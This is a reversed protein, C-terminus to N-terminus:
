YFFLADGEEMAPLCVEVECAGVFEDVQDCLSFQLFDVLVKFVFFPPEDCVWVSSADTEEDCLESFATLLDLQVNYWLFLSVAITGFGYFENDVVEEQVLGDLSYLGLCGYLVNRYMPNQGLVSEGRFAYDSSVSEM